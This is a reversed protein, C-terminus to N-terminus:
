QKTFETISTGNDFNLKTSSVKKFKYTQSIGGSSLTFVFENDSSTQSYGGNDAIYKYSQSYGGMSMIIDSSSFTFSQYATGDLYSTWKGIIWSPPNIKNGNTSTNSDNDNRSCSLLLLSIALLLFLKKM